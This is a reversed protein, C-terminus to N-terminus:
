IHILSLAIASGVPLKQGMMEANGKSTNPFPMQPESTYVKGNVTYRYQVVWTHAGMFGKRSGIGSETVESKIATGHLKPWDGSKYRQWTERLNRAAMLIVILLLTFQVLQIILPNEITM